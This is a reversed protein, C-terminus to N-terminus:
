EALLGPTAFAEIMIKDGSWMVLPSIAPGISILCRDFDSFLKALMGLREPTVGVAHHPTVPGVSESDVSGGYRRAGYASNHEGGNLTLQDADAELRFIQAKNSVAALAARALTGVDATRVRLQARSATEKRVQDVLNALLDDAFDSDLRPAWRLQDGCRLYVRRDDTAVQGSVAGLDRFLAPRTSVAQVVKNPIWAITFVIGDSAMVWTQHLRMVWSPENSAEALTNIAAMEDANLDVWGATPMEPWPPEKEEPISQLSYTSKGWSITLKRGKGVGLQASSDASKIMKLLASAEVAVDLTAEPCDIEVGGHVSCARVKGGRLVAVNFHDEGAYKAAIAVAQKLEM